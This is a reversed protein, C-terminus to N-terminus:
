AIGAMASDLEMRLLALDEEATQAQLRLEDALKRLDATDRTNYVEFADRILKTQHTFRANHAEQLLRKEQKMRFHYFEKLRLKEQKMQLRHLEQMEDRHRVSRVQAEKLKAALSVVKVELVELRAMKRATSRHEQLQAATCPTQEEAAPAGQAMERAHKTGRTDM